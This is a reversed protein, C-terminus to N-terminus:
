SLVIHEFQTPPPLSFTEPFALGENLLHQLYILGLQFLSHQFRDSRVLQIFTKTM